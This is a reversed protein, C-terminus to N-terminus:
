LRQMFVLDNRYGAIKKDGVMSNWDDYTIGQADVPYSGSSSNFGVNQYGCEASKQMGLKKAEVSTVEEPNDGAVTVVVRGDKLKAEIFELAM